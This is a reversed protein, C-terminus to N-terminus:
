PKHSRLHSGLNVKSKCLRGCQPCSLAQVNSSAANKRATRAEKVKQIRNREATVHGDYITQRWTLRDKAQKERTNPLDTILCGRLIDRWDHRSGSSCPLCKIGTQGLIETDPVKDQHSPNQALLVHPLLQVKQCTAQINDM